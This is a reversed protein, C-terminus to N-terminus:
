REFWRAPARRLGALPPQSSTPTTHVGPVPVAVQCSIWVSAGIPPTYFLDLPQSTRPTVPSGAMESSHTFTVTPRSEM